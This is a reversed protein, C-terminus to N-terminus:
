EKDEEKEEEVSEKDDEVIEGDEETNEEDDEVNVVVEEVTEESSLSPSHSHLSSKSLSSPTLATPAASSATAGSAGASAGAFLAATKPFEYLTPSDVSGSRTFRQDPTPLFDDIDIDLASELDFAFEQPHPQLQSPQQEHLDQEDEDYQSYQDYQDLLSHDSEPELELELESETPVVPSAPRSAARDVTALPSVFM